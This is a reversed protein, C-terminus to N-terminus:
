KNSCPICALTGNIERIRHESVLEGCKACEVTRYINAKKPIEVKVHEVNFIKEDPLNIIAESVSNLRTNLEVKEDENANGSKVKQRLKNLNPDINEVSFSKKMSIKIADETKRNIFTYTQKGYDNFILNGKGFTCGTLVQIADVACTDNETICALEEDESVISLEKIAIEAAKYGIASGPCVHGHFETVKLFGQNKSNLFHETNEEVEQFSKNKPKDPM